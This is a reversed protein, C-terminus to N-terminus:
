KFKKLKTSQIAGTSGAKLEYRKNRNTGLLKGQATELAQGETQRFISEM